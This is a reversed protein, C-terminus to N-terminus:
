KGEILYQQLEKSVESVLGTSNNTRAHELLAFLAKMMVATKQEDRHFRSDGDALRKDHGDLRADHEDQKKVIKKFPGFVKVIASGAGYLAVIAGAVVLIAQWITDLKIAETM